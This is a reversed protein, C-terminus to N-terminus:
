PARLKTADAQATGLAEGSPFMEDALRVGTLGWGDGEKKLFMTTEVAGNSFHCLASFQSSVETRSSRHFLAEDARFTSDMPHLVSGCSQLAGLKTKIRSILGDFADAQLRRREEPAWIQMLYEPTPDFLVRPGKASYFADSDKENRNIQEAFEAAGQLGRQLEAGVLSALGLGAIGVLLAAGVVIPLFKRM